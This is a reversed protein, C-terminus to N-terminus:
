SEIPTNQITTSSTPWTARLRSWDFGTEFGRRSAAAPDHDAVVRHNDAAPRGTHETAPRNTLRQLGPAAVQESREQEPQSKEEGGPATDSRRTLREPRPMAAHKGHRRGHEGRRPEPLPRRRRRRTPELVLQGDVDGLPQTQVPDPNDEHRKGPDGRTVETSGVHRERLHRRRRRPLSGFIERCRVQGGRRADQRPGPDGRGIKSDSWFSRQTARAVEVRVGTKILM